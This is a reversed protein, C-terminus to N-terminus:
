QKLILLKDSRKYKGCVDTIELSATFDETTFVYVCGIGNSRIVGGYHYEIFEQKKTCSFLGVFASAILIKKM